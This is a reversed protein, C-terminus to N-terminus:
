GARAMKLCEGWVVDMVRCGMRAAADRRIAWARCILDSTFRTTAQARVRRQLETGIARAMERDLGRFNMTGSEDLWVKGAYLESNIQRAASNSIREGDLTAAYINGTNYYSLRLGYLDNLNSFYYRTRTDSGVWKKAGLAIAIAPTMGQLKATLDKATM